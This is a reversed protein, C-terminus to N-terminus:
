RGLQLAALLMGSRSDALGMAMAVRAIGATLRIAAWPGLGSPTGALWDLWRAALALTVFAPGATRTKVLVALALTLALTLPLAVAAGTTATPASAALAAAVAFRALHGARAGWGLLLGRGPVQVLGGFVARLFRWLPGGLEVPLTRGRGSGRDVFRVPDARFGRRALIQWLSWDWLLPRSTTALAGWLGNTRFIQGLGGTWLRGGLWGRRGGHFGCSGLRMPLQRQLHRSGTRVTGAGRDFGRPSLSLLWRGTRMGRAICCRQGLTGRLDSDCRGLRLQLGLRRRGNLVGSTSRVLVLVLILVRAFVIVGPLVDPGWDCAFGGARAAPAATAATVTTAVGGPARGVGLSSGLCARGFGVIRAFGLGQGAVGWGRRSPLPARLRWTGLIGAFAAGRCSDVLCRVM